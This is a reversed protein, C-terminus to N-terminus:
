HNVVGAQGLGARFLSRMEEKVANVEERDMDKDVIEFTVEAMLFYDLEEQAELSDSYISPDKKPVFELKRVAKALEQVVKVKGSRMMM